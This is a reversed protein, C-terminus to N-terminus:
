SDKLDSFYFMIKRQHLNRVLKLEESNWEQKQMWRHLHAEMLSEREGEVDQFSFETVHSCISLCKLNHNVYGM